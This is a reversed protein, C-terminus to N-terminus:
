LSKGFDIIETQFSLSKVVHLLHASIPCIPMWRLLNWYNHPYESKLSLLPIRVSLWKTQLRVSLRALHNLTQKRVLHNHTRIENSDSLSYINHRNQAQIKISNLNLRFRTRSIIIVNPSIWIQKTQKIKVNLIVHIFVHMTGLECKTLTTELITMPKKRNVTEFAKSM